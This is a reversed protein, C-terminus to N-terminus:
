FDLDLAAIVGTGTTACDIYAYGDAQAFRMGEIPGVIQPLNQALSVELDGIGAGSFSGAKVTIKSTTAATNAAYIVISEDKSLLVKGGNTAVTALSVETILAGANIASETKTIDTRPM